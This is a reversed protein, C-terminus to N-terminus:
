GDDPQWDGSRQAMAVAHARDRAGLKMLLNTVHHKVTRVTITLNEAIESNSRGNAIHDLVQRERATLSAPLERLSPPLRRLLQAGVAPSVWRRGAGVSVIATVLEGDLAPRLVIGGVDAQGLASLEATTVAEAAVLVAMSTFRRATTTSDTVVVVPAYLQSHSDDLSHTTSHQVVLSSTAGLLSAIQQSIFGAAFETRVVLFGSVPHKTSAVRLRSTLRCYYYM